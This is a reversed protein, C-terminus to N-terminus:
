ELDAAPIKTLTGHAIDLRTAGQAMFETIYHTCVLVIAQQAREVILKLLVERADPDVGAFPEDLIVVSCGSQLAYALGLRQLMGQSFHDTRQNAAQSLGVLELLSEARQKAAKKDVGRLRAFYVLFELATLDPYAVFNQPQYIARS